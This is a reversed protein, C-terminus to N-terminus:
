IEFIRYYELMAEDINKIYASAENREHLRKNILDLRKM